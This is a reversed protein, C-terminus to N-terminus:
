PQKSSTMMARAMRFATKTDIPKAKREAIRMPNIDDPKIPPKKPDRNMNMFGALICSTHNWRDEDHGRLM